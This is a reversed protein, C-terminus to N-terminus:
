DSYSFYDDNSRSEYGNFLAMCQKTIEDHGDIGDGQENQVGEGTQVGEDEAGGEIEVGDGVDMDEVEVGDGLDVGEVEVGDDLDVGDDDVGDLGVAEGTQVGEGDSEVEEDSKTDEIESDAEFDFMASVDHCWGIQEVVEPKDIPSNPTNFPTSLTPEIIFRIADYGRFVFERFVDLLESDTSVVTKDSSWPLEAWVTFGGSPLESNGTFEKTTAHVLNILSIHDVDCEGLEMVKTGFLVSVKLITDM